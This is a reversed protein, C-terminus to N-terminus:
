RRDIAMLGVLTSRSRSGAASHRIASIKAEKEEKRQDKIEEERRKKVEEPDTKQCYIYVIGLWCGTM